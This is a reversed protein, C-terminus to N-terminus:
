GRLRTIMDKCERIALRAEDVSIHPKLENMRKAMSKDDLNDENALLYHATALKELERVGKNGLEKALSEIKDTYLNLTKPFKEKLINSQGSLMFAAGYPPTPVYKLLGDARMKTLEDSLDFSYPGHKYLVFNYDLPVELITKLFYSAKQIHTEGCWSGHSRLNEVLSLLIVVKQLRKLGTM